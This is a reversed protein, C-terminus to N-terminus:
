GRHTGRVEGQTHLKGVGETVLYMTYLAKLKLGTYVQRETELVFNVTHISHESMERPVYRCVNQQAM